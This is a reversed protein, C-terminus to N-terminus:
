SKSLNKRDYLMCNQIIEVSVVAYTISAGLNTGTALHGLIYHMSVINVPSTGTFLFDFNDNGTYSEKFFNAPRCHYSMHKTMHDGKVTDFDQVIKHQARPYECWEDWGVTDAITTPGGSAGDGAEPILGIVLDKTSNKVLWTIKLDVSLVRGRNYFAAWENFGTPQVDEGFSNTPDNIRFVNDETIGPGADTTMNFAKCQKFKVFARPPLIAPGINISRKPARVYRAAGSIHAWRQKGLTYSRKRRRRFKKRWKAARKYAPTKYRRVM